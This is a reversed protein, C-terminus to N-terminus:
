QSVVADNTPPIRARRVRSEVYLYLTTAHGALVYVRTFISRGNVLAEPASGRTVVLPDTSGKGRAM